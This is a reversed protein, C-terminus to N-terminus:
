FYNIIEKKIHKASNIQENTLEIDELNMKTLNRSLKTKPKGLRQQNKNNDNNKNEKM